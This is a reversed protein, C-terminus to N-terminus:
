AADEDAAKRVVPYTSSEGLPIPEGLEILREKAAKQDLRRGTPQWRAIEWAGYRGKPEGELLARYWGKDKKAAAERDSAERYGALASELAVDRNEAEALVAKQGEEGWCRTLWQCGDCVYDLGPGRGGRPLHDPNPASQVGTWWALAEDVVTPDFPGVWVYDEGRARDVVVLAVWQVNHGARRRAEAYLMIQWLQQRKPGLERMRSPGSETTTKLDVVGEGDLGDVAETGIDLHGLVGDVRVESEMVTRGGLADAFLPLYHEHIWTGLIAARGVPPSDSWPTGHHAYGAARECGGSSSIGAEAQWTRGHRTDALLWVDEAASVLRARAASLNVTPRDLQATM